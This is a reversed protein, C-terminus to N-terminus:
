YVHVYWVGFVINVCVCVCVSVSEWESLSLDILGYTERFLPLQVICVPSRGLQVHIFSSPPLCFFPYM